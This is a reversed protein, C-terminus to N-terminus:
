ARRLILDAAGHGDDQRDHVQYTVGGVTVRDGMVPPVSFESLRIGLMPSRTTVYGQDTPVEVAPNSFIGRAEYSEAGPQSVIPSVTVAEGFTSQAANLVLASFNIAM